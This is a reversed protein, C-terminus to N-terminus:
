EWSTNPLRGENKIVVHSFEWHSTKALSVIRLEFWVSAAIHDPINIISYSPRIEYCILNKDYKRWHKVVDNSKPIFANLSHTTKNNGILNIM